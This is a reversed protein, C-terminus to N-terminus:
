ETTSGASASEDGGADAMGGVTELSTTPDLLTVRDNAGLGEEVVVFDDNRKGLVVVQEVPAGKEIRYVLTEGNKEFVADIPVFLPLEAIAGEA